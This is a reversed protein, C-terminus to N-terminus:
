GRGTPVSNKGFARMLSESWSPAEPTLIKTKKGVHANLDDTSKQEHRYAVNDWDYEYDGIHSLRITSDLWIKFGLRKAQECFFWDESMDEWIGDIEMERHQFFPYYRQQQHVCDHIAKTEVMKEFVHRSICMCGTSIYKMEYLGGHKGFRMNGDNFLPMVAFGPNRKSKTVYAAGVIDLKKEHALYMIKTADFPTIVVDDDIFMLLDETCKELFHTAVISRSRSILADGDMPLISIKIGPCKCLEWLSKFVSLKLGRHACVGVKVSFESM